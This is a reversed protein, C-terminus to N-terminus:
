ATVDPLYIWTSRAEYEATPHADSGQLLAMVVDTQKIGRRWATLNQHEVVDLAQLQQASSAQDDVSHTQGSGLISGSADVHAGILIVHNRFTEGGSSQPETLVGSLRNFDAPRGEMVPVRSCLADLIERGGVGPSLALVHGRDTSIEVGPVVIVDHDAAEQVVADIRDTRDHDTVAVVDLGDRVCRQVFDRPDFDFEGASDPTTHRHLDCKRWMSVGESARLRSSEGM